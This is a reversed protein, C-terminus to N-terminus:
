KILDFDSKKAINGFRIRKGKLVSVFSRWKSKRSILKLLNEIKKMVMKLTRYIWDKM